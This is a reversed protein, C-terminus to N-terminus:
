FNIGYSCFHQLKNRLLSKSTTCGYADCAYKQNEKLIWEINIIQNQEEKGTKEYM